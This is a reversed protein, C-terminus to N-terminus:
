GSWTGREGIGHPCSTNEQGTRIYFSDELLQGRVIWVM